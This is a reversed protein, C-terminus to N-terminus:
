QDGGRSRRIVLGSATDDASTLSDTTVGHDRRSASDAPEHAHADNACSSASTPVVLNRTGGTADATGVKGSNGGDRTNSDGNRSGERAHEIRRHAADSTAGYNQVVRRRRSWGNFLTVLENLQELETQDLRGRGARNGLSHLRNAVDDPTIV